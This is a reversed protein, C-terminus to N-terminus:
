DVNFTTEAYLNKATEPYKEKTEKNYNEILKDLDVDIEEPDEPKSLDFFHEINGGVGFARSYDTVPAALNILSNNNYVQIETEDNKNYVVNENFMKNFERQKEKPDEINKIKEAREKMEETYIENILEERQSMESIYKDNFENEDMVDNNSYYNPDIELNKQKIYNMFEEASAKKITVPKGLQNNVLVDYDGERLQEELSNKGDLLEDYISKSKENELVNKALTILNFIAETGEKESRDPHYKKALKKYNSKLLKLTFNDRTLGVFEYLETDDCEEVIKYIDERTFEEM